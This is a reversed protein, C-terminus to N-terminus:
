KNEIDMLKEIDKKGLDKQEKISVSVSGSECRLFNIRTVDCDM